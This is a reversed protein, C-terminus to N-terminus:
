GARLMSRRQQCQPSPDFVRLSVIEGVAERTPQKWKLLLHRCSLVQLNWNTGGLAWNRRHHLSNDCVRQTIIVIGMITNIIITITTTAMYNSITGIRTYCLHIFLWERQQQRVVDNDKGRAVFRWSEV